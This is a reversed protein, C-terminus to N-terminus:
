VWWGIMDSLKNFGNIKINEGETRDSVLDKIVQRLQAYKQFAIQYQADNKSELAKVVTAQILYAIFDQPIQPYVSEGALCVYNDVAVGTVSALTVQNTSPTATITTTLLKKYPSNNSIIDVSTNTTFTSPRTDLTLTLSAISDVQGASAVTVLSNPRRYYTVRLTNTTYMGVPYLILSNDQIYFGSNSMNLFDPNLRPISQIMLENSQGANSWLTVDRVKAGIAASPISITQSTSTLSTDEYTIFFEERCSMILPIVDTNLQYNMFNLLRADTYNPDYLPFSGFDRVTNLLGTTTFDTM